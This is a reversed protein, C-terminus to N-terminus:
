IFLICDYLYQKMEYIGYQALILCKTNEKGFLLNYDFCYKM